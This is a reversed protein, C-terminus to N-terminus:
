DCRSFLVENYGWKGRGEGLVNSQEKIPQRKCEKFWQTEIDECIALCVAEDEKLLFVFAALAVRM